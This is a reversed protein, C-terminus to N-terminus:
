KFNVQKMRKLIFGIGNHFYKNGIKCLNSSPWFDLKQGEFDLRLHYGRNLETFPIKADILKQVNKDLNNTRRLKKEENMARFIDGMDGM